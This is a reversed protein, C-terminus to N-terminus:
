GKKARVEAIAAKLADYGVAGSLMRDGVIWTPTGTIRLANQLQQNTALEEEILSNETVTASVNFAAAVKARAAEDPRGNGYLARHFRGYNQKTTAISLSLRAAAESDPGLVPMERYVIKLKPDERLLRDIDPLSARCYGCAYDFFQVLVVDGDPNGEWAGEFPTEILKRNAEVAKTNERDQLREMAQPLIEPHELIYDHVIKEIAAKDTTGVPTGGTTAVAVAAAGAAAAILGIM